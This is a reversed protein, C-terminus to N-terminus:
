TSTCEGLPKVTELFLDKEIKKKYQDLKVEFDMVTLAPEHHIWFQNFHYFLYSYFEGFERYQFLFLQLQKRELLQYAFKTLNIGVIAYPYWSIPHSAHQLVSQAHDPYHTVFYLLDNLGQMGMGRFDTAPDTGQFGIDVWQKTERGKLVENPKMKEWLLVLKAEHDINERDYKTQIQQEVKYLVQNVQHVRQLGLFLVESASPSLSKKLTISSSVSAIDCSPEQLEQKEKVLQKSYFISQDLRYLIAVSPLSVKESTTTINCLRYIESSQTTIHILYKLGKYFSLLVPSGYIRQFVLLIFWHM